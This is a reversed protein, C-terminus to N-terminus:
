RAGEAEGAGGAEGAWYSSRASVLLEPHGSVGVKITHLGPENSTPHFSLLYNNRLHNTLVGLEADLQGQSEFSGAEGGSLSAMEAATNKRMAGIALGLPADLNFYAVVPGAGFDRPPNLHGPGQFAEKLAAKEASFTISYLATDTEGLTRLVEKRQAKSGGDREQSILLIARRTGAPQGKLLDVGYLISDFIAAGSDGADPQNIAERWGATGSLFPSAAEPRSDFNVISVTNPAKGVLGALMTELHEYNKLKGRAAGGTQLLVVLALPRSEGEELTVKQLVGNDMVNFDDAKLSFAIEKGSTQVLTPIVVLTTGTHLTRQAALGKSLAAAVLVSLGISVFKM